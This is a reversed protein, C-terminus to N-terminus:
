ESRASPGADHEGERAEEIEMQALKTQTASVEEDIYGVKRKLSKTRPKSRKAMSASKVFADQETSTFRQTPRLPDSDSAQTFEGELLSISRLVISMRSNQDRLPVVIFSIQLEVIDGEQFIHPGTEKFSTDKDHAARLHLNREGRGELLIKMSKLTIFRTTKRTRM